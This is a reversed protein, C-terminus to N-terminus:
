EHIIQDLLDQALHAIDENSFFSSNEVGSIIETSWEYDPQCTAIRNIIFLISSTLLDDDEIALFCGISNVFTPDAFNQITSENCIKMIRSIFILFTRQMFFEFSTFIPLLSVFFDIYALFPSLDYDFLLIDSLLKMTDDDVMFSKEIINHMFNIFCDNVIGDFSKYASLITIYLELINHNDVSDGDLTIYDPMTPLINPIIEDPIMDVLLGLIELSMSYLGNSDQSKLADDLMSFLQEVSIINSDAKLSIYCLEAKSSTFPPTFLVTAIEEHYVQIFENNKTSIIKFIDPVKPIIDYYQFLKSIVDPKLFFSIYDDSTCILEYIIKIFLELKTTNEEKNAKNEEEEEDDEEIDDSFDSSLFLQEFTNLYEIPILVRYYYLFEYIMELTNFVHTDPDDLSNFMEIICEPSSTTIYQKKKLSSFHKRIVDLNSSKSLKNNSTDKEEDLM